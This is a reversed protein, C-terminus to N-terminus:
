CCSVTLGLPLLPLRRLSNAVPRRRVSTVVVVVRALSRSPLSLSSGDDEAEREEEEDVPLSLVPAEDASRAYRLAERRRGADGELKSFNRTKRSLSWKSVSVMEERDDAEEDVDLGRRM